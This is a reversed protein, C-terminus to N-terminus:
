ALRAEPDIALGDGDWRVARLDGVAVTVGAQLTPAGIGVITEVGAARAAEIGTASDEVVIALRPLVGMRRLALAYGEPDPKGRRVDDSTVMIRPLSLGAAAIRAGALVRTGSTVVAWRDAPIQRVLEAAGAVATVGNADGLELDDVEALAAARDSEAVYMAVTDRSPRGHAVAVIEAPDLSRTSAWVSWAREVSAGSDVLVGDNDFVVAMAPLRLM